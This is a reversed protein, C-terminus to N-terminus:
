ATFVSIHRLILGLVTFSFIFDHRPSPAADNCFSSM